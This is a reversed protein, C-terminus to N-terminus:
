FGFVRGEILGAHFAADKASPDAACADERGGLRLNRSSVVGVPMSPFSSAQSAVSGCRRATSTPWVASVIDGMHGVGVAGVQFDTVGKEVNLARDECWCGANFGDGVAGVDVVLGSM